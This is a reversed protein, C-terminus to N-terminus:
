VDICSWGRCTNVKASVDDDGSDVIDQSISLRWTLWSTATTEIGFTLPINLFSNGSSDDLSILKVITFLPELKKKM